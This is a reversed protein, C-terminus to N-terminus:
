PAQFAWQQNNGDHWTWLHVLAGDATSIGEVDLCSSAANLHNAQIRYYGSTTPAFFFKQNTGNLWDWLQVKSGNATAWGGVEVARGSQVGIISYQGAGRNTVIWRQNAGGTYPWQIIQTGNATGQGFADMAKGSHRAIIRYTGNPIIGSSGTPAAGVYGPLWRFYAQAGEHSGLTCNAPTSNVLNVLLDALFGVVYSVNGQNDMASKIAHGFGATTGNFLDDYGGPANPFWMCETIIMPWRDAAPKYNSNWLNQLATQNNHVGGYAPYFHAAVGINSGSFPYQVWGHPEGQWGLCPVWIFNNAGTNRIANIVPQMFNRFAQFYPASGSGWNNAGFSTEIQVPENMLEFHINDVSKVGPANAVTQWFTILRQQEVPGCNHAGNNPTNIPGTACLVLYLGRSRLHNAYPV